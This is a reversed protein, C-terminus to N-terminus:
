PMTEFLENLVDVKIIENDLKKSSWNCISIPLVINLYVSCKVYSECNEVSLKLDVWFNHKGTIQKLWFLIYM